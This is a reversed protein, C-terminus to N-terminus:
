YPGARKAPFLTLQGLKVQLLRREEKFENLLIDSMYPLFTSEGTNFITLFILCGLLFGLSFLFTTIGEDLNLVLAGEDTLLTDLVDTVLLPNLVLVLPALVVLEIPLVIILFFLNFRSVVPPREEVSLLFDYLISEPRELVEMNSFVRLLVRLMKVQM